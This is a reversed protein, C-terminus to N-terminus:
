HPRGEPPLAVPPLSFQAVRHRWMLVAAIAGGGIALYSAVWVVAAPVDIRGTIVAVGFAAAAVAALLVCFVQVDVGVADPERRLHLMGYVSVCELITLAGICVTWYAVLWGDPAVLYLHAAPMTSTVPSAALCVLMAVAALGVVPAIRRRMFRRLDDDSMLRLYIGRIGTAAGALFLIHGFANLVYFKGTVPFSAAAVEAWPSDLAVGSGFVIIGVTFPSDWRSGFTARREWIAWVAIVLVLVNALYLWAM